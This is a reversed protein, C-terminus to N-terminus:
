GWLQLIRVFPYVASTVGALNEKESSKKADIEGVNSACSKSVCIGFTCFLSDTQSKPDEHTFASVDFTSSITRQDRHLSLNCGQVHQVDMKWIWLLNLKEERPWNRTAHVLLCLQICNQILLVFYQRQSIYDRHWLRQDRLIQTSRLVEITPGQGQIYRCIRFKIERHWLLSQVEFRVQREFKSYLFM